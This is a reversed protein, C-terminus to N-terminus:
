NTYRWGCPLPMIGGPHAAQILTSAFTIPVSSSSKSPENCSCPYPLLLQLLLTNPLLVPPLELFLACLGLCDHMRHLRRIQLHMLFSLWSPQM